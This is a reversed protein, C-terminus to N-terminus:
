PSRPVVTTIRRSVEITIAWLSLIAAFRAGVVDLDRVGRDRLDGPRMPAGQQTVM